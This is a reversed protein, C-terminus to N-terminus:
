LFTRECGYILLLLLSLAVLAGGLDWLLGALTM